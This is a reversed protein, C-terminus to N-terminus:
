YGIVRFIETILFFLSSAILAVLTVKVIWSKGAAEFMTLAYTVALVIVYPGVKPVKLYSLFSYVLGTALITLAVQANVGRM